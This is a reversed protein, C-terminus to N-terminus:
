IALTAIMEALQGKPKRSYFKVSDAEADFKITYDPLENSDALSRIALRFNRLPSSSGTKKHLLKLNIKWVSQRGCHKRALEYIRRDIPKRIRFYDRSITLVEKALAARYLWEPLTVEISVLRGTTDEKIIKYSEILGFGEHSEKGGTLANIELRTGDLRSLAERLRQYSDGDTPRNTTTLFDYAVFRVKRNVDPRDRNLAEVLQSICYIWLDKDHVTALGGHGPKVRVVVNNHHYERLKKDGAKLAFVPHEMSAIDDKPSVDYIDAVFFDRNPHRTSSLHSM